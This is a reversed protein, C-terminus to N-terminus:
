KNWSPDDWSIFEVPKGSKDNKYLAKRGDYNPNAYIGVRGEKVDKKLAATPVIEDDGLWTYAEKVEFYKKYTSKIKDVSVNSKNLVSMSDHLTQYVKTDVDSKNDGTLTIGLINTLQTDIMKSHKTQADAEDQVDLNRLQSELVNIDESKGSLRAKQLDDMIKGRTSSSGEKDKDFKLKAQAALAEQYQPLSNRIDIVQRALQDDPLKMMKEYIDDARDDGADLLRQRNDPNSLLRKFTSIDGTTEAEKVANDFISYSTELKAVENKHDVESTYKSATAAAQQTMATKQKNAIDRDETAAQEQQAIYEPTTTREMEGLKIQNQQLQLDMLESKQARDEEQNRYQLGEMYGEMPARAMKYGSQAILENLNPM